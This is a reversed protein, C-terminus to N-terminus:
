VGEVGGGGGIGRGSGVRGCDCRLLGVGAGGLAGREAVAGDALTVGAHAVGLVKGVREGLRFVRGADSICNRAGIAGLRRTESAEAILRANRGVVLRLEGLGHRTDRRRTGVGLGDTCTVGVCASRLVERLREGLRLVSRLVGGAALVNSRECALGGRVGLLSSGRSSCGDVDSGRVRARGRRRRLRARVLFSITRVLGSRPTRSAIAYPGQQASSVQNCTHHLARLLVRRGGAKRGMGFALGRRTLLLLDGLHLLELLLQVNTVLM